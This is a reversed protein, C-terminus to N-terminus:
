VFLFTKLLRRFEGLEIDPLPLDPPLRNWIRPGAASFSWDGFRKRDEPRHMAM